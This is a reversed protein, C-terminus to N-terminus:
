KGAGAPGPESFFLARARALDFNDVYGDENFDALQSRSSFSYLYLYITITLTVMM